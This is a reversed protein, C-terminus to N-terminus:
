IRSAYIQGTNMRQHCIWLKTRTSSEPMLSDAFMQDPASKNYGRIDNYQYSRTTLCPLWAHYCSIGLQLLFMIYIYICLVTYIIIYTYIHVYIYVIHVYIYINYNHIDLIYTHVVRYIYLETYIYIYIYIYMHQIYMSISTPNDVALISGDGSWPDNFCGLDRDM